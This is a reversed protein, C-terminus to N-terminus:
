RCVYRRVVGRSQARDLEFGRFGLLELAAELADALPAEGIPQGDIRM